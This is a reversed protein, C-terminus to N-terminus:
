YHSLYDLFEGGKIFVSPKNGHECCGTLPGQGSALSIWEVGWQKIRRRRFPAEWVSKCARDM